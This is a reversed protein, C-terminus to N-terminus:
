SEEEINNPLGTPENNLIKILNGHSPVNKVGSRCRYEVFATKGILKDKNLLYSERTSADGIPMCEFTENNIDNRLVFKSFKPRKAGESIIDIIKFKGDLIPKSKYMTSNRKGFQYTAYPNRLIAGEFKAEVFLDRYKIIDEDGNLNDYTHILVFRKKNNMHYDLIAKANVYNPMKFKGFESKLLSIRSTQIMDDIALDYCWFQLFRNYPSKLNEAASLIDNLELGPIYLEGDLVLNDELMRNFLKDTIVDDLLVNELVPCKYELGKRSRFVLGKTKFFGEGRMVASINCRVGNIKMQALLGQENNYEYIKALMPLVFGENNTNYKPLYCDLYNFLDDENTIEAPTNDYLEGLETGGERRKAAVITKWEKEVGRPPIYESTTGTKGVIGYKLIIKHGLIEASWFIPKGQANRKYLTISKSESM